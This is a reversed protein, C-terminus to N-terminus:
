LWNGDPGRRLSGIRHWRADSDHWKERVAWDRDSEPYLGSLSSARCLVRGTRTDVVRYPLTPTDQSHFRKSDDTM